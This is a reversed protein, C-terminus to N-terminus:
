SAKKQELYTNIYKQAIAGDNCDTQQLIALLISTTDVSDMEKIIKNLFDYVSISENTEKLKLFHSLSDDKKEKQLFSEISDAVVQANTDLQDKNFGDLYAETIKFDAHGALESIVSKSVGNKLAISFFSHRGVYVSLGKKLGLMESIKKLHSNYRRKRTKYKTEFLKKNSLELEEDGLPTRLHFFDDIIPFLFDSGEKGQSYYEVINQTEKSLTIEFRKANAWKTKMRSYYLIDDQIQNVKLHAIDIFNMGWCKFSFKFYNLSHWLATNEKLELEFVKSIQEVGINKKKTKVSRITYGKKGFPYTRDTIEKISDDQIAKNYIRRIDRMKIGVGNINNYEGRQNIQGLYWEAYGLLFNKDINHIPLKQKSTYQKLSKIVSEFTGASSSKNIRHLEDAIGQTYQFFCTYSSKPNSKVQNFLYSLETSKNESEESMKISVADKIQDVTLETLHPRLEEIISGVLAYKKEINANVRGSNLYTSKVRLNRFDWENSKFSYGTKIYRSQRGHSIRIKLPYKDSHKSRQDFYKQYSAM